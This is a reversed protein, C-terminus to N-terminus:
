LYINKWKKVQVEFKVSGTSQYTKIDYGMIKITVKEALIKKLKIKEIYEGPKILGTEGIIKNEEYVRCKIYVNNNKASALYFSLVSNKIKINKGIYVVYNEKIELPKMEKLETYKKAEKEFDPVKFSPKYIFILYIIIILLIALISILKKRM